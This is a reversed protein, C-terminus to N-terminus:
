AKAGFVRQLIPVCEARQIQQPTFRFVRWGDLAAANYKEMDAIFGKGRTHRGQTFAGGEVEIAIKPGVWAYDFRWLRGFTFRHERVPEPFGHLVCLLYVPDLVEEARSRPRFSTTTRERPIGRVRCTGVTLSATLRRRDSRQTM